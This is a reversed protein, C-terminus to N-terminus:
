ACTATGALTGATGRSQENVEYTITVGTGCSGELAISSPLPPPHCSNATEAGTVDYSHPSFRGGTIAGNITGTAIPGTFTVTYTGSITGGASSASFSITAPFPTGSCLATGTGNGSVTRTGTAAYAPALLTLIMALGALGPLTRNLSM